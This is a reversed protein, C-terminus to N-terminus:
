VAYSFVLLNFGANVSPISYEGPLVHLLLIMSVSSLVCVGRLVWKQVKGLEPLAMEGMGLGSGSVSVGLLYAAIYQALYGVKLGLPIFVGGAPWGVARILFSVMVVIGVNGLVGFGRLVGL